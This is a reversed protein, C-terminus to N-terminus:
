MFMVELKSEEELKHIRGNVISDLMLISFAVGVM